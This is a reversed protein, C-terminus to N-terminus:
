SQWIGSYLSTIIKNRENRYRWDDVKVSMEYTLEGTTVGTEEELERTAASEFREDDPDSFGGPFRWEKNYAKRVVLWKSEEPHYAAIDVTPYVQPYLQRYAYIIGKRFSEGSVVEPSFGEAAEANDSDLETDTEEITWSGTYRNRLVSATGYLTFDAQSEQESLLEELRRTWDDPEPSEKLSLVKVDPFVENIMSERVQTTFPHRVSGKVPDDTLVIWLQEHRHRALKIFDEQRGTLRLVQFHGTLVGIDKM